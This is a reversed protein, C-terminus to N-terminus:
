IGVCKQWQTLEEESIRGASKLWSLLSLYATVPVAQETPFNQALRVMRRCARPQSDFDAQKEMQLVLSTKDILEPM